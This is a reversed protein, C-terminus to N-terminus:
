QCLRLSFDVVVYIGLVMPVVVLIQPTCHTGHAVFINSIIIRIQRGRGRSIHTTAARKSRHTAQSVLAFETLILHCTKGFRTGGFFEVVDDFVRVLHVVKRIIGFVGVHQGLM